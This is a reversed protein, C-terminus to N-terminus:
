QQPLINRPLACNADVDANAKALLDLFHTDTGSIELLSQEPYQTIM